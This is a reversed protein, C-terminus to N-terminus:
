HTWIHENLPIVQDEKLLSAIQFSGKDWVGFCHFPEGLTFAAIRIADEERSLPIFHDSERGSLIWKGDKQSLCVDRIVAPYSFLWPHRNLQTKRFELWKGWARVGKWVPNSSVRTYSEAQARLPVSSPYFQLRVQYVNGTEWNVEFKNSRFAFDLFLAIKGKQHSQIYTRRETIQELRSELVGLVTWHDDIYPQGELEKKRQQLGALHLIDLQEIPPFQDIGLLCKAILAQDSLIAFWDAPPMSGMNDAAIRIQRAISSNGTDVMQRAISNVLESQEELYQLGQRIIDQYWQLYLRAGEQMQQKKREPIPVEKTM